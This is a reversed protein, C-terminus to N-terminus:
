VYGYNPRLALSQVNPAVRNGFLEACRLDSEAGTNGSANCALIRRHGRFVMYLNGTIWDLAFVSLEITIRLCSKLYARCIPEMYKPLFQGKDHHPPQAHAVDFLVESGQELQDFRVQVIRM